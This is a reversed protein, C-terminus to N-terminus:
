RLELERRLTGRATGDAGYTTIEFRRLGLTTFRSRVALRTSRASGSTRDTLLYGDARVEIATVGAPARELGIEYSGAGLQKVFVGTGPVTDIRGNGLAVQSEADDLGIVEFLRGTAETAFRYETPFNDGDARSARGVVYGDVRYLVRTVSAPALARLQYVGGEGRSWYVEIASYAAPAPPSTGELWFSAGGMENWVGVANDRYHAYRQSYCSYSPLCGNYYHTVTQIWPRFRDNDVRVGNMWAIAQARDSVGAIYVSDIVMRVVFDVAAQTNGAVTLIRNGERRLTDDFTGADFQFMGIGGERLPCPGDGAGAVTPGGGCDPSSPGRCAWTLESWCHSMRTEADAIGALLFGTRMGVAAAADRIAAARVRRQAATLSSASRDVDEALEHDADAGLENACGPSLALVLLVLLALRTRM